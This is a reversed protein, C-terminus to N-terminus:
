KSSNNLNMYGCNELDNLQIESCIIFNVNKTKEDRTTDNIGKVIVDKNNLDILKLLILTKNNGGKKNINLKLNEFLANKDEFSRSSIIYIGNPYEEKMYFYKCLEDGLEFVNKENFINIVKKENIKKEIDLIINKDVDYIESEVFSLFNKPNLDKIGPLKMYKKYKRKKIQADSRESFPNPRYYINKIKNKEYEYEDYIDYINKKNNNNYNNLNEEEGNLYENVFNDDDITSKIKILDYISEKKKILDKEELSANLDFLRRLKEDFNNKAEDFGKTISYYEYKSTISFVFEHIFEIFYHEFYYYYSKQNYKSVNENLNITGNNYIYIINKIGIENLQEKEFNEENDLYGLILIKTGIKGNNEKCFDFFYDKSGKNGIYLFNINILNNEVKFFNSLDEKQKITKFKITYASPIITSLKQTLYFNSNLQTKYNNNLPNELLFYFNKSCANLAESYIDDLRKKNLNKIKEDTEINLLNDCESKYYEFNNEKKIICDFIKSLYYEFKEDNNLHVNPNELINSLTLSNQFYDPNRTIWYKFIGLRLIPINIKTSEKEDKTEEKISFKKEFFDM